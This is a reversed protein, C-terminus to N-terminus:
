LNCSLLSPALVIEIDHAQIRENLRHVLLSAENTNLNMKWNAVIMLKRM